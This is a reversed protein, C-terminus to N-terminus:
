ISTCISIVKFLLMTIYGLTQLTTHPTKVIIAGKLYIAVDAFLRGRLSPKIFSNQSIFDKGSTDPCSAVNGIFRYM